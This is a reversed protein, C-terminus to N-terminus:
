ADPDKKGDEDPSDDEGEVMVRRGGVGKEVEPILSEMYEKDRGVLTVTNRKKMWRPYSGVKIGKPEVRAALETLYSAIASEAMPTSFLIRHTGKGEPDTLRPLLVPKMGDLLAEFLRPIGPLIHINGNVVSIPVWLDDKVFLVQDDINRSEDIPLEVMRLRATRQPSPTDWSFGPL